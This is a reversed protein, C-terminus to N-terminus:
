SYVNDNEEIQFYHFGSISSEEEVEDEPYDSFCQYLGDTLLSYSNMQEFVDLMVEITKSM